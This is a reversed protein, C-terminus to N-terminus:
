NTMNQIYGQFEKETYTHLKKFYTGAYKDLDFYIIEEGALKAIKDAIYKRSPPAPNKESSYVLIFESDNKRDRLFSDTLDNFVLLSDSIKIRIDTPKVKSNKFEIFINDDKILLADVSKAPSDSEKLVEFYLSKVKDFNYVELTSNSLYLQNQEDYSTEHLTSKSSAFEPIYDFKM